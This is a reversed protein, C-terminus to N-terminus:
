RLGHLEYLDLRAPGDIALRVVLRAPGHALEIGVGAGPATSTVPTGPPEAVVDLVHGAGDVRAFVRLAVDPALAGVPVEIRPETCPWHPRVPEGSGYALPAPPEQLPLRGDGCGVVSAAGLDLAARYPRIELPGALRAPGLRELWTEPFDGRYFIVASNGPDPSSSGAAQTGQGGAARRLFFGNDTDLDSFGSGHVDHWTRELPVRLDRALIQTATTKTAVDLLRARAERPEPRAGGLRLFDLNASVYGSAAATHIWWGLLLTRGLVVGCLLWLAARRWRLAQWTAGLVVAAPVLGTDLYYYWAEAPLLAVAAVSSLFLLSVVRLAPARAAIPPRLIVYLAAALAAAVAAGEILLWAGTLSSADAASLGELLRPVLLLIDHLRHARPDVAVEAATVQPVPEALGILMPLLPLAGVVAAVLVGRWTLSRLQGLVVAGAVLALPVAALHLQTGLAATFLLLAARATSPRRLFSTVALLLLASWFPLAAPAWAIRADIVAVPSTAFLATAALAAPVGCLTRTLVWVLAVTATGLVAAYVYAALPDTAFFAPLSWFYYYTVGLHFRNRMLPGLSPFAQGSAILEAWTVDRAQDVGFWGADVHTLRLVAALLM